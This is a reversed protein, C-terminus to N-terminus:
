RGERKDREAICAHQWDAIETELWGVARGSLPVSKPFQGAAMKDYLTSRSLGTLREVETRRLIAQTRGGSAPQSQM